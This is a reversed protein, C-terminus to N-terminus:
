CDISSCTLLTTSERETGQWQWHTHALASVAPLVYLMCERTTCICAVNKQTEQVSKQVPPCPLPLFCLLNHCADTCCMFPRCTTRRYLSNNEQRRWYWTETSTTTATDISSIAHLIGLSICCEAFIPTSNNIVQLKFYAAFTTANWVTANVYCASLVALKLTVVSHVASGCFWPTCQCTAHVSCTKGTCHLVSLKCFVVKCFYVHSEATEM